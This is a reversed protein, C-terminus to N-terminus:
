ALKLVVKLLPLLLTVVSFPPGDTFVQDLMPAPELKLRLVPIVVFVIFKFPDRKSEEDNIPCGKYSLPLM